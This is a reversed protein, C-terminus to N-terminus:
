VTYNSDDIGLVHCVGKFVESEFTQGQRQDSHIQIPIGFIAVIHAIFKKAITISKKNECPNCRDM